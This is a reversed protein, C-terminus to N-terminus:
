HHYKHKSDEPQTVYYGWPAFYSPYGGHKLEKSPGRYVQIKVRGLKYPNVHHPDHGYGITDPSADPFPGPYPIAVPIATSLSIIALM